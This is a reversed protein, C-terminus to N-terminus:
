VGSETMARPNPVFAKVNYPTDVLKGTANETFNSNDMNHRYVIWKKVKYKDPM